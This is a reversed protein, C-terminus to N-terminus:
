WIDSVEIIHPCKPRGNKLRDVVKSTKYKGVTRERPDFLRVSRHRKLGMSENGEIYLKPIGRMTNPITIPHPLCWDIITRQMLTENSQGDSQKHAKAVSYVGEVVAECGNAGLAIDLSLCEEQGASLYIEKNCYFEAFLAAEDIRVVIKEGSVLKLSLLCDLKMSTHELVQITEIMENALVTLDGGKDSVFIKSRAGGLNLWVMDRVISQYRNLIIAHSHPLMDLDLRSGAHEQIHPLLCIEEFFLCFEERGHIEWAIRNETAVELKQEASNLRYKSLFSMAEEVDFIGALKGVEMPVAEDFKAQLSSEMTRALCEFDSICNM